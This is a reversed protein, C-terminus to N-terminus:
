IVLGKEVDKKQMFSLTKTLNKDIKQLATEKGQKM